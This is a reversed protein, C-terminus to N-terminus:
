GADLDLAAECVVETKVSNAIFCREHAGRHLGQHEEETPLRDGSFRVRPRLTVRVMAVRGASDRGLLGIAADVYEDVRFGRQAALWLFWLMHCSSLSAIFAEEPDVASESSMPLPVVLPSASAPVEAGGDFRWFHLRSYRNDTFAHDGRSWVILARHESM